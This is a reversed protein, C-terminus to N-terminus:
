PQMMAPSQSTFAGQRTFFRCSFYHAKPAVEKALRYFYAISEKALHLPYLNRIVWRFAIEFARTIELRSPLLNAQKNSSRKMAWRLMLFVKERLYFRIVGQQDVFNNGDNFGFEPGPHWQWNDFVKDCFKLWSAQFYREAVLLWYFPFNRKIGNM